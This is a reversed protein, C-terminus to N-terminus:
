QNSFFYTWNHRLIVHYTISGSQYDYFCFYGQYSKRRKLIMIKGFFEGTRNLFILLVAIGMLTGKLAKFFTVPELYRTVITWKKTEIPGIQYYGLFHTHLKELKMAFINNKIWSLSRLSPTASAFNGKMGGM